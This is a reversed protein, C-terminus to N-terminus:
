YHAHWGSVFSTIAKVSLVRGMCGRKSLGYVTFDTSTYGDNRSVRVATKGYGIYDFVFTHEITKITAYDARYSLTAKLNENYREM